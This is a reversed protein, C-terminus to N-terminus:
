CTGTKGSRGRFRVGWAAADITEGSQLRAYAARYDPNRRLCEWALDSASLTQLTSYASADRWDPM